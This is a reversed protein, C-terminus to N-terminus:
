VVAGSFIVVLGSMGMLGCCCCMALAVMEGRMLQGLLRMLIGGFRKLM